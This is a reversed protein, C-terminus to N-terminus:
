AAKKQEKKLTGSPLLIKNTWLGNHYEFEYKGGSEMALHGISALGQGKKLRGNSDTMQNTTKIALGIQNFEFYFHAENTQAEAMNKILNNMIRYFTPFYILSTVADDFDKHIFTTVKEEPLYTQILCKVAVEAFSYPVWENNPSLNKHSFQFHDKILSQLTRVEKELMHIEEVSIIKQANQRQNFFLILGHTLNILDHFFLREQKNRNNSVLEIHDNKKFWFM